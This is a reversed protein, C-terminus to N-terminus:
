KVKVDAFARRRDAESGVGSGMPCVTSSGGGDRDDCDRFQRSGRGSPCCYYFAGTKEPKWVNRWGYSLYECYLHQPFDGWHSMSTIGCSEKLSWCKQGWFFAAWAACSTASKLQIEAFFIDGSNITVPYGDLYFHRQQALSYFEEHRRTPCM